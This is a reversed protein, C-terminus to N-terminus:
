GRSQAQKARLQACRAPAQQVPSTPQLAQTLIDYGPRTTGDPRILGTDFRDKAAAQWNYVYIRKLRCPYKSMLNMAFTLARAARDEDFALRLAKDFTYMLVIGGTETLWIDAKTAKLAEQTGKTSFYNASIYNHLGWVAVRRRHTAKLRREYRKMWTGVGTSDLPDGAAVTCRKCTDMIADHYDAVREPQKATPQNPHNAENWPSFLRLHPYKRMLKRFERTYQKVTPLYCPRNPCKNTRTRDFAILPQVGTAKASSIWADVTAPDVSIANWPIVLRATKVGIQRLRPDGFTGPKNDSVGVALSGTAASATHPAAMAWALTLLLVVVGALARASVASGAEKGFTVGRTDAM